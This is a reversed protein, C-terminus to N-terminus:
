CGLIPPLEKEKPPPPLPFRKPPPAVVAGAIPDVVGAGLVAKENPVGAAGAAVLVEEAGVVVGAEAGGVFRKAPKLLGAGAAPPEERKPCGLAGFGASLLVGADESNEPDPVACFLLVAPAFGAEVPPKVRPAVGEVFAADELLPVAATGTASVAAFGDPNLKLGVGAEEEVLVPNEKPGLLGASLADVGAAGAVDLEVIAFADGKEKALEFVM